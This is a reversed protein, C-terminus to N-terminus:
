DRREREVRELDALVAPWLSTWCCRHDYEPIVVLRAGPPTTETPVTRDRGGTYHRQYVGAPLPLQRAPNLSGALRASRQADAWADIDLNAAV